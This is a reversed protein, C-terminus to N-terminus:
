RRRDIIDAENVPIGIQQLARLVINRRTTGEVVAKLDVAQRVAPPVRVQVLVEKASAVNVVNSPESTGVTEIESPLKTTSSPKATPPKSILVTEAETRQETQNNIRHTDKLLSHVSKAM